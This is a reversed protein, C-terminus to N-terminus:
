LMDESTRKPMKVPAYRPLKDTLAGFLEDRLREVDRAASDTKVWQLVQNGARDFLTSTGVTRSGIRERALRVRHRFTRESVGLARAAASASGYLSATDLACQLDDDTMAM